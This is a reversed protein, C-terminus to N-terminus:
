ASRRLPVARTGVSVPSFQLYVQNGRVAARVKLEHTEGYRRAAHVFKAPSRAFDEGQTCLHVNGDLWREWAYVRYPPATPFGDVVKSM